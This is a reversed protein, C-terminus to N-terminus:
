ATQWNELVLGFQKFHDFIDNGILGSCSVPKGITKHEEIINIKYGARDLLKSAILGAPGAGIVAIDM